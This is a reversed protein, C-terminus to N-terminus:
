ATWTAEGATGDEDVDGGGASAVQAADAYNEPDPVPASPGGIRCAARHSDPHLHDDRDADSGPPENATTVPTVITVTEHLWTLQEATGDEDVDGGGASPAYDDEVPVSVASAPEGTSLSGFRGHGRDDQPAVTVTGVQGPEGPVDRRFPDEPTLGVPNTGGAAGSCGHLRELEEVTPLITVQDPLQDGLVLRSPRGRRDELNRLYGRDLAARVRRSASSKDIGLRAAVQVVTTEGGGLTLEAVKEVTARIADSVTQEVADSILDAVLDRVAAYDALTAIVVGAVLERTARHLLAHAQILSLVTAFDRRLRVAVPPIAEALTRAYPVEVATPGGALWDQLAHWPEVDGGRGAGNAHALLVAKTQAPSDNVTLSLLRTENEPHLRVATTTVILGTPGEREILRSNLGAKTKEVTVYRVKGESLLSRILYSQMEGTMGAAEYIVLMRHALPEKDYALAHESMASLAYYASPPFYGLVTETLFSKGGASPGKVALSVIRDLLRSVVVLFILLGARREGAVGAAALEAAFRALIDPEDALSPKDRLPQVTATTDSPTCVVISTPSGVLPRAGNILAEVDERSGGAALFDAADGHEPADSWDIWRVDAAVGVLAAGIRQMHSRGVEDNDAWLYVRRGALEALPIAGPTASAGTVTGVAQVGNSLLAEAAKEGEVLIVTASRNLRDIGYLPLDASSMGGLGPTGDPQEWWMRKGDPGEQRCHMAVLVGSADCIRYRTM